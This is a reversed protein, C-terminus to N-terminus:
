KFDTFDLKLESLTFKLFKSVLGVSSLMVKQKWVGSRFSKKAKAVYM